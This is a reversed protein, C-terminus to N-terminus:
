TEQPPVPWTINFPDSQLTVDRLAQRYVAWAEKTAIPVDPLQTWDSQALLQNRKARVLPWETEATRPDVWQKTTYDFEHYESPRPPKNIPIKNNIYYIDSDFDGDLWDEGEQVQLHIISSSCFYKSTIEGTAKKYVTFIM